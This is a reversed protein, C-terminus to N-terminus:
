FEVIAPLSVDVITKSLSLFYLFKSTWVQILRNFTDAGLGTEKLGMPFEFVAIWYSGRGDDVM